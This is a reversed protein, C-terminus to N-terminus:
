HTLDSDKRASHDLETIPTFLNDANRLVFERGQSSEAANIILPRDHVPRPDCYAGEIQFFKGNYDFPKSSSGLREVIEFWEQAYAYRTEHDKPLRLGLARYEPDNWGAVINLGARGRSRFLPPYPFLPDPRTPRPTPRIM